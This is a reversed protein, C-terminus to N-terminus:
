SPSPVEWDGVVNLTEVDVNLFELYDKLDALAHEASVSSAGYVRIHTFVNNSVWHELLEDTREIEAEWYEPIMAQCNQNIQEPTHTVVATLQSADFKSM